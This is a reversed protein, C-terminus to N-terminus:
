GGVYSREPMGSLRVKARVRVWVRMRLWVRVRVIVRVRIWACSLAALHTHTPQTSRDPEGMDGIVGRGHQPEGMNVLRGGGASRGTAAGGVETGGLHRAKKQLAKKHRTGHATHRTGHATHRTDQVDRRHCQSPETTVAINHRGCAVGDGQGGEPLHALARGEHVGESGVQLHSVCPPAM